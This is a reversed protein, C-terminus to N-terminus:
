ITVMKQSFILQKNFYINMYYVGDTSREIKKSVLNDESGDSKLPFSFPQRCYYVKNQEDPIAVPKNQPVINTMTYQSFGWNLMSEANEFMPGCNLVVAILQMGNRTASGVFCRGAKTTYGTKVGDADSMENLLKNKNFIVINNGDNNLVAKRLSVVEHVTPNKLACATILALDYATTYHNDCPLGHPNSFHTRTAGISEARQNMLAVFDDVSGSTHLALAVAADNGSRLMLGCLLEKVTFKQGERLYISSGEIGVARSDVTVVEDMANNEAVVLATMIKTTSAMPLQKDMNKSYLVRGSDREMLVASQAVTLEDASAAYSMFMCCILILTAALLVRKTKIVSCGRQWMSCNKM